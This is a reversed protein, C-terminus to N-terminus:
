QVKNKIPMYIEAKWDLENGGYHPNNYFIELPTNEIDINHRKAYEHLAFWGRDSTIYNGNYIAKLAKTPKLVDFKVFKDIPLSDNQKVPFCFRFDITNKNLNWKKVLLFPHEGGKLNHNNIFQLLRANYAMMQEAKKRMEINNFEIYAYAKKPITDIGVIKVKYKNKLKYDISKKFDKILKVAINKFTTNFFPATLRNYISKEKETIGVVTHTISDNISNFNWVIDLAMGN